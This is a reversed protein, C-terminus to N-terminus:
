SIAIIIISKTDKDVKVREDVGFGEVYFIGNDDCLIAKKEREELPVSENFLVKLRSTFGRGALSIRDANRRNRLYVKGCLKDADIINGEFQKYVGDTYTFGERYELTLKKDFFVMEIPISEVQYSVEAIKSPIKGVRVKGSAKDCIVYNEGCINYKGGNKCVEITKDIRQASVEIDAKMLMKGVARSMVAKPMNGLSIRSYVNESLRAAALESLAERDLFKDIELLHERTDSYSSLLSSNIEQLVPIIKHRIKNRTYEDELNTSDTVFDQGKEALFSEIEDRSCEILPRIINDRKPPISCLGKLGTGRALNFITTELCDNLNHATAIKDCEVSSLAKYRLERAGEEVSVHNEKCYGLVDIDATYIKIGLRNCLDICFNKDRISEEGRLNHNVHFASINIGLEILCLLLCVSDAGGSLGVLVRDGVSLMGYKEITVYVKDTIKMM